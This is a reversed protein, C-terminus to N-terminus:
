KRIVEEEIQRLSLLENEDLEVGVGTGAKRAMDNLAMLVDDGAKGDTGNWRETVHKIQLANLKPFVEKVGSEEKLVKKDVVLVGALEKAREMFVRALIGFIEREEKIKMQGIWDEVWSLGIKVALGAQM